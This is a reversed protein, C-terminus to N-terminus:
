VAFNKVQEDRGSILLREVSSSLDWCVLALIDKRSRKSSYRCKRCKQNSVKKLREAVVLGRSM